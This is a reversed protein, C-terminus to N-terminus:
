LRTVRLAVPSPALNPHDEKLVLLYTGSQEATIIRQDDGSDRTIYDGSPAVITLHLRRDGDTGEPSQTEILYSEGAVLAISAIDLLDECGNYLYSTDFELPTAQAVTNDPEFQDPTCPNDRINGLEQVVVSSRNNEYDSEQADYFTEVSRGFNDYRISTDPNVWAQLYRVGNLSTPIDLSGLVQTLNFIGSEGPELLRSGGDQTRFSVLTARYHTSMDADQSSIVWGGPVSGSGAGNNIVTVQASIRNENTPAVVFNIIEFDPLEGQEDTDTLTPTELLPDGANGGTSTDELTNSSESGSGGCSSIM